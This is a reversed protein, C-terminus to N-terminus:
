HYLVEILQKRRNGLATWKRRHHLFRNSRQFRFWFVPKAQEEASVIERMTFLETVEVLGIAPSSDQREAFALNYQIRKNRRSSEILFSVEHLDITM